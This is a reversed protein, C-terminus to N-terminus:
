DFLYVDVLSGKGVGGSDLPLHIFARARIMTSILGSKGLIPDAWMEGGDRRLSCRVFEERGPRSSINRSCRARVPIGAPVIEGAIHRLLPRVATEYAVLASSPHGPLGVALKGDIVAMITPKGPRLALGHVIVGQRGFSDFVLAVMDRPGASSGGSVLVADFQLASGIADEIRGREDPVVGLYEPVLGDRELSARIAPGNMDRIRGPGPCESARVVEDGTSIVAVRPKEYIPVSIIGLGELAGLDQPRLRHGDKLLVDGTAVDEGRRIVNEGPGVAGGVAVTGDGPEECYELMVAADAGEPLAGGTPIRMACGGSLPAGPLSGMAVDGLVDLIAPMSESAGFTDAARVAYGDVTSRAFPPLDEGAVIDASLVLGLASRTSARGSKVGRSLMGRLHELAESVPVVQLL